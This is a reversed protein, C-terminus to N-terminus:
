CSSTLGARTKARREVHEACAPRCISGQEHSACHQENGKIVLGLAGVAIGESASLFNNGTNSGAGQRPWVRTEAKGFTCHPQVAPRHKAMLGGFCAEYDSLNLKPYALLRLVMVSKNGDQTALSPPHNLVLPKTAASCLGQLPLVLAQYRCYLCRTAVSCSGPLRLLLPKYQYM